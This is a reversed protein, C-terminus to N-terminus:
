WLRCAIPTSFIPILLLWLDRLVAALVGAIVVSAWFSLCFQCALMRNLLDSPAHVQMWELWGWKRCLALLFAVALAVLAVLLALRYM